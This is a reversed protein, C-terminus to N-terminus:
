KLEVADAPVNNNDSPILTNIVEFKTAGLGTGKRLWAQVYIDLDGSLANMQGTVGVGSTRTVNLFWPQLSQNGATKDFGRNWIAYMDMDVQGQAPPTTKVAFVQDKSTTIKYWHFWNPGDMSLIRNDSQGGSLPTPDYVTVDLTYHTALTGPNSGSVNIRVEFFYTGSYVCLGSATEWRTQLFSGWLGKYLMGTDDAPGWLIVNLNYKGTDANDYDIHYLSANIAQGKNCTFSFFDQYDNTPSVMLSGTMLVGSSIPNAHNLDGNNEAEAARSSTAGAIQALASFASGLMIVTLLIGMFKSYKNNM